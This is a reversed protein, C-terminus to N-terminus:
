VIYIGFIHNYFGYLILYFSNIHKRETLVRNKTRSVNNYEMILQADMGELYYYWRYSFILCLVSITDKRITSVGM